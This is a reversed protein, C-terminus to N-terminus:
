VLELVKNVLKEIGVAVDKICPGLMYAPTTVLKNNSDVHIMDVSCEKHRGGMAEIAGATGIDNGITVQPNKGELAKTLTVPAICIAGVPKGVSVMDNLLRKVDENVVADKGKIAFNSLNKAAGFGGPIILGDIDAARVKSIDKINSRAIRASEVLVNRKEGTAEGTLHNVVDLQDVDPAMCVTEAGAKDLTLMTIVAEHIESGDNVGCGSLLVGIKAM